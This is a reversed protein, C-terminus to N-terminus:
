TSPTLVPEAHPAPDAAGPVTSERMPRGIAQYFFGKAVMEAPDYLNRGDVMLPYTMSRRIRDLDLRRASGSRWTPRTSTAPTPM